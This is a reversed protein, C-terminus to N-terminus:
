VFFFEVICLQNITYLIYFEMVEFTAIKMNIIHVLYENTGNKKVANRERNLDPKFLNMTKGKM